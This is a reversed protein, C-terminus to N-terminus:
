DYKNLTDDKLVKGTMARESAFSEGTVRGLHRISMLLSIAPNM